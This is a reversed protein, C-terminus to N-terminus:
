DGLLGDVVVEAVRQREGEVAALFLREKDGFHNYVTQKSVGAAAAIVDVGARQYGERLFVTVAADLIAQRKAPQPGHPRGRTGRRVANDTRM